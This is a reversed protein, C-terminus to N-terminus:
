LNKIEEYFNDVSLNVKREEASDNISLLINNKLISINWIIKTSAYKKTLVAKIMEGAIKLQKQSKEAVDKVENLESLYNDRNKFFEIIEPFPNYPFKGDAVKIFDTEQKQLLTVKLQNQIFLRIKVTPTIYAEWTKFSTSDTTETKVLPFMNSFNVFEQDCNQITLREANTHMINKHILHVIIEKWYDAEVDDFM